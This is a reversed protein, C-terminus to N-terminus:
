ASGDRLPRSVESCRSLALPAKRRRKQQWVSVSPFDRHGELVLYVGKTKMEEATGLLEAVHTGGALLEADGAREVVLQALAEQAVARVAQV